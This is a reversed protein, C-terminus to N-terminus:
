SDRYGITWYFVAGKKIFHLDDRSVEDFPFAAEEQPGASTKDALRAAFSDKLVDTVTGEWSQLPILVDHLLTVPKHHVAGPVLRVDESLTLTSGPPVNILLGVTGRREVFRNSPFYHPIEVIGSSDTKRLSRVSTQDPAPNLM